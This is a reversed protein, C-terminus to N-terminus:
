AISKKFEICKDKLVQEYTPPPSSQDRSDPASFSNKATNSTSPLNSDANAALIRRLTEASQAQNGTSPDLARECLKCFILLLFTLGISLITIVIWHFYSVKAGETVYIDGFSLFLAYTKHSPSTQLYQCYSSCTCNRSQHHCVCLKEIAVFSKCAPKLCYPAKLGQPGVKICSYTGVELVDNTINFQVLDKLYMCSSKFCSDGFGNLSSIEYGGNTLCQDDSFCILYSNTNIIESPPIPKFNPKCFFSGQCYQLSKIAPVFNDTSVNYQEDNEFVVTKNNPELMCDCDYKRDTAACPLCSSFHILFLLIFLKCLCLLSTVM